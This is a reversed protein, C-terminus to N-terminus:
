PSGRLLVGNDGLPVNGHHCLVRPRSICGWDWDRDRIRWGWDFGWEGGWAMWDWDSSLKNICQPMARDGPCLTLLDAVIVKIKFHIDSRETRSSTKESFDISNSLSSNGLRFHIFKWAHFVQIAPSQKSIFVRFDDVRM